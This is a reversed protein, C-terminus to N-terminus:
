RWSVALEPRARHPLTESALRRKALTHRLPPRSPRSGTTLGYGCDDSYAVAKAQLLGQGRAMGVGTEVLIGSWPPFPVM